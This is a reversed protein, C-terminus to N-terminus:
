TVPLHRRRGLVAEVLFEPDRPNLVGVPDTRKRLPLEAPDELVRLRGEHILVEDVGGMRGSFTTYVPTGLAVAERNM